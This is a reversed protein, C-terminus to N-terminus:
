RPTSAALRSALFELPHQVPLESEGSLHLRCGINASLLREAGSAEFQRLLPARHRAARERDLLMNLGAAGCCGTGADLEVVDLGPVGALLSRLAPVSGVVNRQTCPLHLAVRMPTPLFAPPSAHDALWQIADVTEAHGDLATALSGHCGSALTLVTATGAFADLNRRALTDARPTDGGHAHLAGCCTQGRPERVATGTAACLAAVARRVPEEYSRAVCGLFLAVAPADPPLIGDPGSLPAPPTSPRPPPPLGRRWGRPVWRYFSLLAALLRPRAALAEFLRQTLAARRRGRQRARALVLLAGYEVGAPCVSECTRCALCHDLHAEGAPTPAVTGQAIHRVWAIRGRPSEAELRDVAYTPCSPLCLGCQVCRDALALLPDDARTTHAAGASASPAAPPPPPPAPM